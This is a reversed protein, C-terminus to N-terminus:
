DSSSTSGNSSHYPLRVLFDHDRPVLQGIYPLIRRTQMANSNSLQVFQGQAVSVLVALTLFLMSQCNQMLYSYECRKVKHADFDITRRCTNGFGLSLLFSEDHKPM